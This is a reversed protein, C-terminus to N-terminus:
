WVEYVVTVSTSVTDTGPEITSGEGGMGMQKEFLIPNSNEVRGQTVSIVGGLKKNIKTAILEARKKSNEIAKLYLDNKLDETNTNSEYYPGNVSTAKSLALMNAFSELQNQDVDRLKIEVNNSANWQGPKSKQVGEEYINQEILYISLNQTKINKSDVGFDKIATIINKIKENVEALAEEKTDKTASVGVTFTATKNVQTIKAEGYVIITSKKYNVVALLFISFGLILLPTSRLTFFLVKKFFM